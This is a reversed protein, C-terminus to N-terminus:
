GQAVFRQAEGHNSSSGVANDSDSAVKDKTASTDADDQEIAEDAESQQTASLYLAPKQFTAVDKTVVVYRISSGPADFMPDLLIN